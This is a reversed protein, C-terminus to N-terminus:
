EMRHDHLNEIADLGARYAYLWELMQPRPLRPSLDWVGTRNLPQRFARPRGYAYEIVIKWNAGGVLLKANITEVVGRIESEASM